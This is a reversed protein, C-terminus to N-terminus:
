SYGILASTAKQLALVIRNAGRRVLIAGQKRAEDSAANFSLLPSLSPLLRLASARDPYHGSATSYLVPTLIRLIELVASNFDGSSLRDRKADFAVAAQRYRAVHGAVEDLLEEQHGSESLEQLAAEFDAALAALSYPLKEAELLSRVLQVHITADELLVAPDVADAVDQASHWWRPLGAGPIRDPDDEALFSSMQLSTVGIGLFSQDSGRHPRRRDVYKDPRKLLQVTGNDQVSSGTVSDIVRIAFAQAEATVNRLAKKVAGKSGNIDVNLYGICHRHLDLWNQDAYWASGAYRGQSHGPWWVMKLGFRPKTGAFCRAIELLVANAAVNDTAGDFWSCYHAGALLYEPSRGEITAVPMKVSRWGTDGEGVRRVQVPGNALRASLDVYDFKSVSVAPIRPILQHEAETAPSGWIPSCTMKHRQPGSSAGILGIAGAKLAASCAGYEPLASILVVKGRVDIGQYDVAKGAGVAVLEGVVGGAGTDESFAVGVADLELTTSGLVGVSARVPFSIFADFTQVEYRVGYEALKAVIIDCAAAESPQGSVKEGVSCLAQVSQVLRDQDAGKLEESAQSTPEIASM